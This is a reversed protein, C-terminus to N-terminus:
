SKLSLITQLMQDATTILKAAATYSSQYRILNSMEEDLNVGAVQQQQENLDTALTNYFSQNFKARNTDTGVNGVLGNYYDLLSTYTTGEVVSSIAVQAERLAYMSQAMTNDGENMEGAGNVHAQPSIISTARCNRTSRSTWPRRAESSHISAWAPWSGPATTALPSPAGGGRSRADAQQQRNQRLHVRCLTTNIAAEVDELSHIEPNFTAGGGFDLSASSTLLGTSTNYVYMFATGSQLRSGFVLGTSDSGLAKTPDSVGYTGEAMSFSQLGAGQSHRRNTEWVLTETLNELKDRYKGIYNDRFTLLAALSGGTLRSTNEEGNFHTQPTIEQKSSTNEVWYLGQHPSIIFRDGVAFQGTPVGQSNTASGFWLQLGRSM